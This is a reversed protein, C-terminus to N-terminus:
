ITMLQQQSSMVEKITKQLQAQQIKFLDQVMYTVQDMIMPRILQLFSENERQSEDVAGFGQHVNGKPDLGGESVTKSTNDNSKDFKVKKEVNEKGKFRNEARQFQDKQESQQKRIVPKKNLLAVDRKEKVKIRLKQQNNIIDQNTFIEPPFDHSYMCKKGWKCSDKVEFEHVCLGRKIKRMNISHWKERLCCEDKCDGTMFMTLCVPKDQGKNKVENGRSDNVRDEFKQLGSTIGAESDVSRNLPIKVSGSDSQLCTLIDSINEAREKEHKCAELQDELAEIKEKRDSIDKELVDITTKLSKIEANKGKIIASHSLKLEKLIKKADETNGTNGEEKEEETETAKKCFITNMIEQHSKNETQLEKLKGEQDNVTAMLTAIKGELVSNKERALKADNQNRQCTVTVADLAKNKASLKRELDKIKGQLMVNENKLVEEATKVSKQKGAKAKAIKGSSIENTKQGMKEVKQDSSSENSNKQASCKDCCYDICKTHFWDSCKSCDIMIGDAPQRCFCFLEEENEAIDNGEITGNDEVDVLNDQVHTM